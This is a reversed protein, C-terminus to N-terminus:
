VFWIIFGYNSLYIGNGTPGIIISNHSLKSGLNSLQFMVYLAWSYFFFGISFLGCLALRTVNWIKFPKCLDLSYLYQLIMLLISRLCTPMASLDIAFQITRFIKQHLEHLTSISRPLSCRVWITLPFDLKPTHSIIHSVRNIWTLNLKLPIKCHNCYQSAFKKYM